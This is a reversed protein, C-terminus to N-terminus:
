KFDEYSEMAVKFFATFVVNDPSFFKDTSSKTKDLAKPYKDYNM